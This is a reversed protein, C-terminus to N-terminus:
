PVTLTPLSQFPKKQLRLSVCVRVCLCFLCYICRRVFYMFYVVGRAPFTASSTVESIEFRQGVGLVSM